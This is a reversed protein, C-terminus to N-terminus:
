LLLSVRVDGAESAAIKRAFGVTLIAWEVSFVTVLFTLGIASFGYKFPILFVYQNSFSPYKRLFAMLFGFGFYLM